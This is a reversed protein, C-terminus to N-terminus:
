IKNFAAIDVSQVLDEIGEIKEQLEDISVKDDEVVCVIQLKKIGYALPVLKSAGWLLGDMEIRRVNEEMAKMDTEDDWPKVDLVINSKAVVQPKKSKKEQYAKLREERAKDAEEDDESGFLDIDDDDGTVEKKAPAHNTVKAQPAVVKAAPVSGTTPCRKELETIRTEMKRLAALLEQLTNKMENHEQLIKKQFADDHSSSGSKVLADGSQLSNKIQQRAQAIKDVLSSSQSSQSSAKAKALQDRNLYCLYQKEADDYKAKDLWVSDLTLPHAM